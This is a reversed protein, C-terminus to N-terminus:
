WSLRDDRICKWISHTTIREVNVNIWPRFTPSSCSTPIASYQWWVSFGNSETASSSDITNLCEVNRVIDSQGQGINQVSKILLSEKPALSVTLIESNKASVMKVHERTEGDGFDRDGRDSIHGCRWQASNESIQATPQPWKRFKSNSTGANNLQHIQFKVPNYWSYIVTSKIFRLIKSSQLM